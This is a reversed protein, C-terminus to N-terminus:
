LASRRGSAREPLKAAGNTGRASREGARSEAVSKDPLGVATFANHGTALHVQVDVSVADVGLFAVTKIYAVM